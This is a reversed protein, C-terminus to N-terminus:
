FRAVAGQKLGREPDTSGCGSAVLPGFRATSEARVIAEAPPASKWGAFAEALCESRPRRIKPGPWRAKIPFRGFRSRMRLRANKCPAAAQMRRRARRRRPRGACDREDAAPLQPQSASRRGLALGLGAIALYCGILLCRSGARLHSADHQSLCARTVPAHHHLQPRHVPNLPPRPPQTEASTSRREHPPWGTSGSAHPKHATQPPSSRPRPSQADHTRPEIPGCRPSTSRRPAKQRRWARRDALEFRRTVGSSSPKTNVIERRPPSLRDLM